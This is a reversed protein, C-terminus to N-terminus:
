KEMQRTQISTRICRYVVPNIKRQIFAPEGFVALVHELTDKCPNSAEGEAPTDFSLLCAHRSRLSRQTEEERSSIFSSPNRADKNREKEKIEKRRREGM